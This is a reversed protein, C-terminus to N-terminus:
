GPLLPAPTESGVPSKKLGSLPKKVDGSPAPPPPTVGRGRGVGWARPRPGRMVTCSGPGGPVGGPFGTKLREDM